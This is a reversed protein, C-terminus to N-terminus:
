NTNGHDDLYSSKLEDYLQYTWKKIKRMNKDNVYELFDDSLNNHIWKEFDKYDKLIMERVKDPSKLLVRELQTSADIWYANLEAPNNFYADWDQVQVAAGSQHKLRGQKYDILHTCEHIFKKKDMRDEAHKLTKPASLVPCIIATDFGHEKASKPLKTSFGWNGDPTLFVLTGGFIKHIGKSHLLGKDPTVFYGYNKRYPHIYDRRKIQGVVVDYFRLALDHLEKDRIRDRENLFEDFSPYYNM